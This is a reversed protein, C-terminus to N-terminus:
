GWVYFQVLFICSFCPISLASQWKWFWFWKYNIIIWIISLSFNRSQYLMTFVREVNVILGVSVTGKIKKRSMSVNINM